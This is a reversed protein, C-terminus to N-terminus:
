KVIEERLEPYKVKINLTFAYVSIGSKKGKPKKSQTLLVNKFFYSKELGEMSQALYDNNTTFGSITLNKGNLKLKEIWLEEHLVKALEDFVMAPGYRESRLNKIVKKRNQIKKAQKKKAELAKAQAELKKIKSGVEKNKKTTEAISNTIGIHLFAIIGLTFLLALVAIIIQQQMTDTKKVDRTALLNIKIM